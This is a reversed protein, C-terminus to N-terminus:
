RPLSRLVSAARGDADVVDVQIVTLPGQEIAPKAVPGRQGDQAANKVAGKGTVEPGADNSRARDQGGAGGQASMGGGVLLGAIAAVKVAVILTARKM